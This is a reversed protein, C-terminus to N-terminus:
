FWYVAGDLERDNHLLTLIIFKSLLRFCVQINNKFKKHGGNIISKIDEVVVETSKLPTLSVNKDYELM